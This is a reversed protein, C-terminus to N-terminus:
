RKTKRAIEREMERQKIRERKDHKKRSTGVGIELKVLGRETGARLPLIHQGNQRAARLRQVESKHLLLKRDRLPDHQIHAPKYPSIRAKSLVPEGDMFRVYSGKLSIHGQKISKVESGTLVLGATLTYGIDFDFTARKNRAITKMTKLIDSISRPDYLVSTPLPLILYQTDLKSYRTCLLLLDHLATNSTDAYRETIGSHETKFALPFWYVPRM